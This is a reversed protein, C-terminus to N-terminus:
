DEGNKDGGIAAILADLGWVFNRGTAVVKSIPHVKVSGDTHLVDCFHKNIISVAIGTGSAFKVEDGRNIKIDNKWREIKAIAEQPTYERMVDPLCPDNFIEIFVDEDMDVLTKAAEWADALGEEYGGSSSNLTGSLNTAEVMRFIGCQDGRCIGDDCIDLNNCVNKEIWEGNKLLDIGYKEYMVAIIEEYSKRGLNRVKKLDAPSIGCLDRTEEYVAITESTLKM